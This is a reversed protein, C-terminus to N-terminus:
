VAFAAGFRGLAAQLAASPTMGSTFSFRVPEAVARSAPAGLPTGLLDLVRRAIAPAPDLFNVPWRALTEFRQLLLPYHTCAL